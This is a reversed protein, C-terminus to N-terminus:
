AYTDLKILGSKIQYDMPLSHNFEMIAKFIEADTSGQFKMDKYIGVRQETVKAADSDFQTSQSTWARWAEADNLPPADNLNVLLKDPIFAADKAMTTAFAPDTEVDPIFHDWGHRQTISTASSNATAQNTSSLTSANTTPKFQLATVIMNTASTIDSM